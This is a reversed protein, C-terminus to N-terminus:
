LGGLMGGLTIDSDVLLEAHGNDFIRFTDSGITTTGNAAWGSGVTSVTDTTGGHITLRTMGGSTDDSLHFVDHKALVIRQSGSVGMDIAEISDIATNRITAFDFVDSAGDMRLTDYGSGGDIKVFGTGTVGITDNGAGSRIIDAGGGGTLTDNGLGGILMEAATTGTTTIPANGTFAGGYVVYAEGADTGGDDGRPAGVILDDFGDGNVDGASSVSQGANDGATDGQIIFGQMSTLTGLDLVQRGAAPMGFGNSTGFVVYAEGAGTGGDSGLQAGVILDDFGDGNVDGASSVSIGADDGTADGQIIFGQAASLTALDIVQRGTGDATGFGSATGFLVYAEGANTGGANGRPAGVILDDFGDGNVDGASSVSSAIADYANAGQIIFGQAASLTTLDIVQRSAVATGFGSATGFVVYAEGANAAGDDGNRAGVIMDDFGDGNVDGASSVSDGAYDSATDGQIIFGQTASLTTLDIVQRGGVSTGLGSATGFVVYAEGAAAGGDDGNQAGVILDDFGDGNVDGASSVSVGAYDGDTDGQIIFGHAGTLTTLDIVQRGSGDAMGFGSTTGFVVYAEGANTGGDDGYRAGVILDDLGDGNVDGASSVSWGACDLAADGQIIFGRSASLSTLDIMQHGGVSAGFGSANGFVVCAEGANTGGDDGFRAGVILDTFSDGNVDGASSVSWGAADGAADGQIIFGQSAALTTLDLKLDISYSQGDSDSVTATNGAADSVAVSAQITKDQDALLDSGAVLISFANSTVVGIYDHGNVVLTVVDGNKVDGTVAGTIAVDGASETREVIGNATIANLTLAAAPPTTDVTYSQSDNAITSNGAVDSTTVSAEIIKDSDAALDAGAVTISFKGASVARTHEVGNVVITVIDGNGVDGGVTGTIAVNGGAEASNVINDATVDNVAIVAAPPIVDVAYAKSTNATTTNDAEGTTVQAEIRLDSDVSLQGGDVEISFHGSAVAGEYDTGNVTVTVIDGDKVAGRVMGTIDVKGSAESANVINDATVADLKISAKPPDDSGEIKLKLVASDTGGHGDSATYKFTDFLKDGDGLADVKKNDDDLTYTWKGNASLKLTGFDGEFTGPKLVKLTDHDKDTDNALVNGEATPDGHGRGDDEVVRDKGNVDNDAVPPHNKAGRSLM